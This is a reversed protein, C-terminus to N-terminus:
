GRIVEFVQPFLGTWNNQVAMYRRTDGSKVMVEIDAFWNYAVWESYWEGEGEANKVRLRHRFHSAEDSVDHYVTIGRIVHVTSGTVVYSDSSRTRKVM